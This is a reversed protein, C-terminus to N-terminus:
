TAAAAYIKQLADPTLNASQADYVLRGGALIAVRSSLAFGRELNHTTMVVSRRLSGDSIGFEAIMDGLKDAATRDIGTDPEDLLLIPPDHVIARAISLRQIMGRSFTRARDHQRTELGVRRLVFAVREDLTAGQLGYLKAYFRVNEAATLDEYLFPQHGIVGILSRISTRAHNLPVGGIEISGTTPRSLGALIRLLTTKGAGNAGLLTLFEGEAVDLDLRRLATFTGFTKTVARARIAIPTM